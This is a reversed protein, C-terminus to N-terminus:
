TTESCSILVSEPNRHTPSELPGRLFSYFLTLDVYKTGKPQCSQLDHIPFTTLADDLKHYRYEAPCCDASGKGLLM